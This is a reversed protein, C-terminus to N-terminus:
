STRALLSGTPGHSRWQRWLPCCRPWSQLAARIAAAKQPALPRESARLSRRRPSRTQPPVAAVPTHRCCRRSRSSTTHRSVETRAFRQLNVHAAAFALRAHLLARASSRQVRYVRVNAGGSARREPANNPKEVDSLLAADNHHGMHSVAETEPRRRSRTGAGALILDIHQWLTDYACADVAQLAERPLHEDGVCLPAPSPLESVVISSDPQAGGEIGSATDNRRKKRHWRLALAVALAAIIAALAVAGLVASIVVGTSVDGDGGGSDITPGDRTTFPGASAARPPRAASADPAAAVEEPKPAPDSEAEIPVPSPAVSAPQVDDLAMAAAM